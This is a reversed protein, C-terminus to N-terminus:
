DSPPLLLKVSVEFRRFNTYRATAQTTSQRSSYRERMEVPVWVGLRPDHQFQVDSRADSDQPGSVIMESRVLRGTAPEIWVRGSAFAPKNDADVVLSPREFERFGVIWVMTGDVPVERQKTFRVHPQHEQRLLLLPFTPVHFNRYPSGINFRASENALRRWGALANEQEKGLLETFRDARARIERGDAEYVDRFGLWIDPAGGVRVMLFDALTRRRDTRTVPPAGMRPVAGLPTAAFVEQIYEEEAIMSGLEREYALVYAAARELVVDLAPAQAHSAALSLCVLIM